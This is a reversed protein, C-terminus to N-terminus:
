PLAHMLTMFSLIVAPISILTISAVKVQTDSKASSEVSCRLRCILPGLLLESLIVAYFCTLLCVAMAPGISKPDSMNALMKVFGILCGLVGMGITILRVSVLVEQSKFAEESDLREGSLSKRFAKIIDLPTHHVLALTVPMVGVLLISQLDFFIVPSMDMALVFGFILFSILAFILRLM